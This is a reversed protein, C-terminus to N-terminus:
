VISKSDSLEGEAITRVVMSDGCEGEEGQELSASSDDELLRLFRLNSSEADVPFEFVAETNLRLPRVVLFNQLSELGM